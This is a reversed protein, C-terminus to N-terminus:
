NNSRVQIAHSLTGYTVDQVGITALADHAYDRPSPAFYSPQKIGTMKTAVYCPLINQIM